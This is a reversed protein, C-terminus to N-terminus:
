DEPIDPNDEQFINDLVFAGALDVVTTGAAPKIVGVDGESGDAANGAPYGGDYDNGVTINVADKMETSKRVRNDKSSNLIRPLIKNIM